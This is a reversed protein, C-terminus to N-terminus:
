RKSDAVSSGGFDELGLEHKMEQPACATGPGPEGRGEM